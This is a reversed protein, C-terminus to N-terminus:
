RHPTHVRGEGPVWCNDAKDLEMVQTSIYNEPKTKGSAWMDSSRDESIGASKNGTTIKQSQLKIAVNRGKRGERWVRGIGREVRM